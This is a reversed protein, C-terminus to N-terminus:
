MLYILYTILTPITIIISNITYSHPQIWNVIISKNGRWQLKARDIGHLCSVQVVIASDSALVGIMKVTPSNDTASFHIPLYSNVLHSSTSVIFWLWVNSQMFDLEFAFSYFLFLIVLLIDALFAANLPDLAALYPFLFFLSLISHNLTDPRRSRICLIHALNHSLLTPDLWKILDLTQLFM